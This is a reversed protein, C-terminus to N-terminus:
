LGLEANLTERPVVPFNRDPSPLDKTFQKTEPWLERLRKLTTISRLTARVHTRAETIADRHAIQQRRLNEYEVSLPHDAPYNELCSHNASYPLRKEEGMWLTTYDSGFQVRFDNTTPLWGDPLKNMRRRDAPKFIRNFVKIAFRKKRREIKDGEEQFRYDLLRQLLIDRHSSNLRM